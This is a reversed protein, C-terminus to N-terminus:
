LEVIEPPGDSPFSVNPDHTQPALVFEPAPVQPYVFQTRHPHMMPVKAGPDQLHANSGLTKWAKNPVVYRLEDKAALWALNGMSVPPNPIQVSDDQPDATQMWWQQIREADATILDDNYPRSSRGYSSTDM